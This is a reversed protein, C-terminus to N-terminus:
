VEEFVKTGDTAGGCCGKDGMRKSLLEYADNADVSVTDGAFNWTYQKGSLGIYILQAPILSRLAVTNNYSVFSKSNQSAGKDAM